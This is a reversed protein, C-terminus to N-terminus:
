KMEKMEGFRPGIAAEALIPVDFEPFPQTEMCQKIFSITEDVRSAPIEFVLEDHIQLLPRLWSREPLGALIRGIALKLLDAATGQIPTNLACRQAFSKTGWESSTIGPLYRRRGLWTESFRRIEAQRKTEEQWRALAPYGAKLNAIIRECDELTVNLGAKFKLTKQLGRPFLGFFTGFNCNKAITRQEKDHKGLGYIVTATQDHIDGGARYTELMRADRCYFAGVRLEIQSFDLSLLVCGEPAIFFNRVGVDDARRYGDHSVPLSPALRPMNQLNPNRAAFRGTETALPLLDAHIRGTAPNIYRAYGTIYTSQIKGWRRYDQVLRFLTVLEPRNDACWEALLIMAEDDAAAALAAQSSDAGPLNRVGQYKATTKLVPLGLDKYLYCKFASTSANAGIPVDGIIAAINRRLQELERDALAAKERMLAEDVLLGNYRMIGCYVATPSEIHEVIWRHRPLYSDFWANFKHYLRLAYDADACAYNVTAPAAPDLEDFFSGATVEEFSPMETGFLQPMLTKLGCDGLSRFLGPAKLTLQAAAITDYVPELLVIGRQYLFAAEFALNHAIKTIAPDAFWGALWHWVPIIDAVNQGLRHAIPVYVASSEAVSFSMGVIHAKHPDLAAKPEHRWQEYPSTEFDFATLQAGSLYAQLEPLTTICKYM